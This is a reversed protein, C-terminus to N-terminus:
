QRLVGCIINTAEIAFRKTYSCREVPHFLLDVTWGSSGILTYIPLRKCSVHLIHLALTAQSAV